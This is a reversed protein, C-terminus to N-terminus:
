PINGSDIVKLENADLDKFIRSTLGIFLDDKTGVSDCQKEPNFIVMIISTMPGHTVFYYGDRQLEPNTDVCFDALDCGVAGQMAQLRSKAYEFLNDYGRIEFKKKSYSAFTGNAFLVYDVDLGPRIILRLVRKLEDAPLRKPFEMQENSRTQMFM